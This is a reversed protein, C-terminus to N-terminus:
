TQLLELERPQLSQMRMSDIAIITRTYYRDAFRKVHENLEARTMTSENKGSAGITGVVAKETNEDALIPHAVLSLFLTCILEICIVNFRILRKPQGCEYIKNMSTPEVGKNIM